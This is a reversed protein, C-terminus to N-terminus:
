DIVTLFDCKKFSIVTVSLTSKSFFYLKAGEIAHFFFAACDHASM